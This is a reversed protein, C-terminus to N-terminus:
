YLFHKRKNGTLKQLPQFKVLSKMTKVATEMTRMFKMMLKRMLRRRMKNVNFKIPINKPYIHGTHKHAHMHTNIHTQAYTHTHTHISIIISRIAIHFIDAVFFCSLNKFARSKYGTWSPMIYMFLVNELVTFDHLKMCPPYLINILYGTQIIYTAVFSSTVTCWISPLKQGMEANTSCLTIQHLFKQFLHHM